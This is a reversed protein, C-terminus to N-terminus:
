PIAPATSEITRTSSRQRHDTFFSVSVFVIVVVLVIPPKAGHANVQELPFRRRHYPSAGSNGPAQAWQEETLLQRRVM